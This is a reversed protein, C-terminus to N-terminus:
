PGSQFFDSMISLYSGPKIMKYVFSVQHNPFSNCGFLDLKCDACVKIDRPQILSLSSSHTLLINGPKLDRHMVGMKHIALM